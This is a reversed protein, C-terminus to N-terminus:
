KRRCSKMCIDYDTKCTPGPYNAMCRKRFEGCQKCADSAEARVADTTGCAILLAVTAAITVRM